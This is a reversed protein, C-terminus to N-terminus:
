EAIVHIIVLRIIFMLRAPFVTHRLRDPRRCRVDDCCQDQTSRTGRVRLFNGFDREEMRGLARSRETAAKSQALAGVEGAIILILSLDIQDRQVQVLAFVKKRASRRAAKM